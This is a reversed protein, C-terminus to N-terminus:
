LFGKAERWSALQAFFNDEAWFEETRDNAFRLVVMNWAPIIYLRQGWHGMAILINVPARSYPPAKGSLDTPLNIWFHRGTQDPWPVKGKIRNMMAETPAMSFETWSLNSFGPIAGKPPLLAEGAVCGDHLYLEGFRLFDRANMYGYAGYYTGEADAELVASSIGLPEFLRKWPLDRYDAGYLSKLVLSLYATDGSSYAWHSGPRYRPRYPLLAKEISRPGLGYLLNTISSQQPLLNEEYAEKWDLGSSYSLLHDIKVENLHPFRPLYDAISKNLDLKGDAVAIGALANFISKSGSWLLHKQKPGYDNFYAELEIKDRYAILIADTQWDKQPTGDARTPKLVFDILKQDHADPAPQPAETWAKPDFGPRECPAAHLSGCLLMFSFALGFHATRMVDGSSYNPNQM